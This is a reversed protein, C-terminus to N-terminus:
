KPPPPNEVFNKRSCVVEAKDYIGSPNWGSQGLFYLKNLTIDAGPFKEKALKFTFIDENEFKSFSSSFTQIFDGVHDTGSESHFTIITALDILNSLITTKKSVVDQNAIVKFQLSWTDETRFAYFITIQNNPESLKKSYAFCTLAEKPIGEYVDEFFINEAFLNANILRSRRSDKAGNIRERWYLTEHLVLAAKNTNDFKSWIESDILILNPNVFNAVQEIQCKKPLILEHSDDIFALKTSKPLFKFHKYVSRSLYNLDVRTGQKYKLEAKEIQSDMAENSIPIQLGYQFRGEYFDLIEASVIKKKSDRCIVGRGGGGDMGGGGALVSLNILM